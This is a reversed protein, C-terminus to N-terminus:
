NAAKYLFYIHKKTQVSVRLDATALHSSKSTLLKEFCDDGLELIEEGGEIKIPKSTSSSAIETEKVEVEDMEDVDHEVNTAAAAATNAAAEMAKQSKPPQRKSARTAKTTAAKTNSAKIVPNADLSLNQDIVEKNKGKASKTRARKPVHHSEESEDHLPPETYDVRETASRRKRLNSVEKQTEIIHLKPLTDVPQTNISQAEMTIVEKEKEKVSNKRRRKPTSEDETSEQLTEASKKPGRKTGKTISVKTEVSITPDPLTDTLNVSEVKQPVGMENETNKKSRNERAPPISFIGSAPETHVPEAPAIPAALVEATNAPNNTDTEMATDTQSTDMQSTDVQCRGTKTPNRTRTNTFKKPGVFSVEINAPEAADNPSEMQEIKKQGALEATTLKKNRRKNAANPPSAPTPETLVDKTSSPGAAAADTVETEKFKELQSPQAKKSKTRGKKGPKEHEAPAGEAAAPVAAAPVAAAPVAAAPVAAAPVAAAVILDSATHIDTNHQMNAPGAAVGAPNKLETKRSVPAMGTTTSNKTHNNRCLNVGETSSHEVPSLKIIAPDDTVPGTLSQKLTDPNGPVAGAAAVQDDASEMCFPGTFADHPNNSELGHAEAISLPQAKTASKMSGAACPENADYELSGAEKSTPGVYTPEPLVPQTTSDAVTSDDTLQGATNGIFNSELKQSKKEGRTRKAKAANKAGGKKIFANTNPDVTPLEANDAQKSKKLRSKSTSKGTTTEDQLVTEQVIDAKAPTKPPNNDIVLDNLANEQTNHMCPAGSGM